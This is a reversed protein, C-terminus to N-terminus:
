RRIVRVDTPEPPAMNLKERAEKIVRPTNKLMGIELELQRREELLHAYHTREKGLELAVELRKAHVAVHGLAALTMGLLALCGVGASLRRPRRGAEVIATM